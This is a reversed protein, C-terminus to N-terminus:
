ALNELNDSCHKVFVVLKENGSSLKCLLEDYENMIIMNKQLLDAIQCAANSFIKPEIAFAPTTSKSKSASASSTKVCQLFASMLVLISMKVLFDSLLEENNELCPCTSFQILAHNEGCDDFM